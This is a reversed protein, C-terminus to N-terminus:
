RPAARRAARRAVKLGAMPKAACKCQADLRLARPRAPSCGVARWLRSFFANADRAAQTINRGSERLGHNKM